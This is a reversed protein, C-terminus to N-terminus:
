ESGQQMVRKPEIQIHTRPKEMELGLHVFFFKLELSWAQLTGVYYKTKTESVYAVHTYQDLLREFLLLLLALVLHNVLELVYDM